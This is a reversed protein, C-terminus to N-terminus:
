HSYDTIKKYKRIGNSKNYKITDDQILIYNGNNKTSTM